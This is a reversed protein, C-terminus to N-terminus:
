IRKGRSTLTPISLRTTLPTASARGALGQRNAQLRKTQGNTQGDLCTEVRRLYLRFVSTFPLALHHAASAIIHDRWISRGRPPEVMYVRRSILEWAKTRVSVIASIVRPVKAKARPALFWDPIRLRRRGTVSFCIHYVLPGALYKRSHSAFNM